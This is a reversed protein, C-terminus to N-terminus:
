VQLALWGGSPKTLDLEPAASFGASRLVDAGVRDAGTVLWEAGSARCANALERLLRARLAYAHDDAATVIARVEVVRPSLQRTAAVAALAAGDDATLNWLGSWVEGACRYARGGFLRRARVYDAATSLQRFVMDTVVFPVNGYADQRRSPGIPTGADLRRGSRRRGADLRREIHHRGADVRRWAPGRVILAMSDALSTAM